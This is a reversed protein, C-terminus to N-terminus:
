DDRRCLARDGASVEASHALYDALWRCGEKLLATLDLEAKLTPAPRGNLTFEFGPEADDSSTLLAPLDWGRVRGAEEVVVVRHALVDAYCIPSRQGQLVRVMRGETHWVRVTRDASYSILHHGDPVFRVGRVRAEHGRLTKLLRGHRHWLKVTGNASATAFQQGNPSFQVDLIRSGHGQLTAVADGDPRWLHVTRGSAAAILDGQPSMSVAMVRARHGYLAIALTGDLRWIRVTRDNGASILLKGDPSFSVHRVGNYHEDYIQLLSGDIRWLRVTQDNSASAMLSGNPSFSVSRVIDEHGHFTRVLEGNLQWLKVTHDEGATILHGQPSLSADLVRRRHGQNVYLGLGDLDWLRITRDDGASALLRGDGSFAIGYVASSHGYFQTMSEGSIAHLRVASGGGTLAVMQNDPSICVGHGVTAQQHLNGLATGDRGWRRVVGDEGTSLLMQGDASFALSHVRGEHGRMEALLTGTRHWLRIKGGECAAALVASDPSFCVHYIPVGRYITSLAEGNANWLCVIGDEGASAIVEGDPSFCVGFVRNSHGKLTRIPVGDRRWLRITKDASASALIRGDPHFAVSYVQDRHGSCTAIAQGSLAWLRVTHDASASALRDGEPSFAVDFVTARHGTFRNVERIQNLTQWLRAKTQQEIDAPVDGRRLKRGAKVSSLLAGLHDHSLLLAQSLANLVKIEAMEARKREQQEKLLTQKLQAKTQKLEAMLEPRQERRIFPVLYDHVLQYYRISASPLEFVLGAGVLIYLVPALQNRDVGAEEALETRTKLPRTGQEETLFYLIKKALQQNELGCNEVAAKVYRKVLAAKPGQERYTKLTTIGELHMQAGVIQLEIPSVQNLDTALDDVLAEVLAPEFFVPTRETLREIVAKAEQRSFNGIYYLIQQDLINNNIVDLTTFRTIELLQHLYDERLAIIVKVYPINLCRKLFEYFARRQQPHKCASYFEEFQDFILVTRLNREDNLEIQTLTDANPVADLPIRREGLAQLLAEHLNDEWDTYVQQLVPLTDRSRITTRKLTPILGASLISSKGVGSEGYIVTLRNDTRGLRAVLRDIDAQRGSATLEHIGLQGTQTAIAPNTVTQMPQLRTAGLFARFGFQYEIARRDQRVKFAQLYQKQQFYVLRLHNLIRIYLDPDYQPNTDRGAVELSYIASQPQRLASCARAHALLYWGQHFAREWDQDAEQETKPAHTPEPASKAGKGSIRVAPRQTSPLERNLIALAREALEKAAQWDERALAVESLFGYARALRFPDSYRRHLELARQAVQELEPWQGLRQLVEGLANIFRATLEPHQAKEFTDICRQFYTRARRCSERHEIRNHEAWTRWLLGLSYLLIGQRQWNNTQQWFLLSRSYREEAEPLEHNAYAERGLLFELSAQLAVDPTARRRTLDRLAAMLEDRYRSGFIATNNLFRGVGAALVREFLQEEGCTLARILQSTAPQFDITTAWSQFDPALRIMQRLVQDNVWLILPFPCCKRFEDRVQNAAKLLRDLDEVFDFGTVMLAPPTASEPQPDPACVTAAQIAQLISQDSPKLHVVNIPTEASRLVWDVMTHQLEAYNCHALVLSFEEPVLEVVRVIKGVAQWNYRDAEVVHQLNVM